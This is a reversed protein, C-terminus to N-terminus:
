HILSQLLGPLMRKIELLAAEAERHGNSSITHLDRALLLHYELESASGMSMYLIQRLEARSNRGCDEAINAPISGAARRMQNSLAVRVDVPLQGSIRYIQLVFNRSRRWVDLKRFDRM